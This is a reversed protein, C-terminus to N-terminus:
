AGGITFFTEMAYLLTQPFVMEGEQIDRRAFLGWRHIGSRGFCVRSHETKQFLSFNILKMRCIYLYLPVGVSM